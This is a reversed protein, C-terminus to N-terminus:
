QLTQKEQQEKPVVGKPRLWQYHQDKLTLWIRKSYPAKSAKPPVFLTWKDDTWKWICVETRAAECLARMSATTAPTGATAVRDALGADKDAGYRQGHKRIEAATLLRLAAQLRGGAKTDDASLVRPNANLAHIARSATLFACDGEGGCDVEDLFAEFESTRARKPPRTTRAGSLPRAQGGPAATAQAPEAAPNTEPYAQTAALAPDEAANAAAAQAPNPEPMDEDESAPIDDEMEQRAKSRPAGWASTAKAQKGTGQGKGKGKQPLANLALSVIAGSSFEYASNQVAGDLEARFSWSRRNIRSVGDIKKFGRAEAWTRLDNPSIWCEPAKRICWRPALSDEEGTVASQNTHTSLIGIQAGPFPRYVLRGNVKGAAAKCRKLYAQASEDVRRKQFRPVYSTDQFNSFVGDALQHTTFPTRGAEAIMLICTTETTYSVAAKVKVIHTCLESPYALSAM